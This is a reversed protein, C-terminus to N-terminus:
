DHTAVAQAIKWAQRRGGRELGLLMRGDGKARAAGVQLVAAALHAALDDHWIQALHGMAHYNDAGPSFVPSEVALAQLRELAIRTIRAMAPLNMVKIEAQALAYAADAMMGSTLYGGSVAQGYVLSLVGHGQTRAMEVCKALHAMYANLGLLEDRRRLRQGQTDLLLLLTRGPHARVTQLIAQAMRLVLDVGVEAAGATGIVQVTQGASQGSGCFFDPDRQTLAYQGAFLQQLLTEPDPVPTGAVPPNM